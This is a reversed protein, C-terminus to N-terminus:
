NLDQGQIIKKKQQMNRRTIDNYNHLSLIVDLSIQM